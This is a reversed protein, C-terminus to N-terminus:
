SIEIKGNPLILYVFKNNAKAYRVTSWTGSRLIEKDEFPTAIIIDSWDVIDRNRELYEKEPLINSSKCYARKSNNKPPHIVIEAHTSMVIRHAQADAGICDGHHFEFANLMSPKLGDIIYAFVYSQFDNMGKQTGTFGIKM